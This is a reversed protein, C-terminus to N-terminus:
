ICGMVRPLVCGLTIWRSCLKLTPCSYLTSSALVASRSMKRRCSKSLTWTTGLGSSLSWLLTWTSMTSRSRGTFVASDSSSHDIAGPSPPLGSRTDMLGPPETKKSCRLRSPQPLCSYPETDVAFKRWGWSSRPKLSSYWWGYQRPSPSGSLVLKLVDTNLELFSEGTKAPPGSISSTGEIQTSRAPALAVTVWFKVLCDFAVAETITSSTVVRSSDPATMPAPELCPACPWSEESPGGVVCLPLPVSLSMNKWPPRVRSVVWKTFPVGTPARSIKLTACDTPRPLANGM